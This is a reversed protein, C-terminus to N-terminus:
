PPTDARHLVRSRLAVLLILFLLAAATLLVARLGASTVFQGALLSGLPAAFLAMATVLGVARGRMGVPAREQILVNALPSLPGSAIGALLVVMLVVPLSPLVALVAATIALVGFCALVLPRRRLRHGVVGYVATGLLVGVGLAALVVGVVLPSSGRQYAWVPLVVAALPAAALGLLCALLGVVRLLPDSLVLRLGARLSALYSGGVFPTEPHHRTTGALVVAGTLLAAVPVWLAPAPGTLTVLLGALPPGALFGLGYVGEYAANARERRTGATDAVAPLLAERAVVAVTTTAGALFVLTVLFPLPLGVSTIALALLVLIVAASLDALVSSRRHGVRDVLPGGLVAAVAVPLTAASAVLGTTAASGTEDLVLWPLAIQLTTAGLLAAAHATLLGALMIRIRRGPASSHALVATSPPREIKVRSGESPHGYATDPAPM